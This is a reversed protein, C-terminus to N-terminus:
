DYKIKCFIESQLRRLLEYERVYLKFISTYDDRTMTLLQYVNNVGNDKLLKLVRTPIDISHDLKVNEFFERNRRIYKLRETHECVTKKYNNNVMREEPNMKSDRIDYEGAFFGHIHGNPASARIYKSTSIFAHGKIIKVCSLLMRDSINETMRKSM